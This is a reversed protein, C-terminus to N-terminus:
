TGAWHIRGEPRRLKSVQSLVGPPFIGTPGGGISAVDDWAHVRVAVPELM